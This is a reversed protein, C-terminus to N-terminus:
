RTTTGPARRGVRLSYGDAYPTVTTYIGQWRAVDPLPVLYDRDLDRFWVLTATGASDVAAQYHTLDDVATRPNNYVYRRPWLRAEVRASAYLADPANSYVLGAPPARRVAALLASREWRANNLGWAGDGLYGRIRDATRLATFALWLGTLAALGRVLAPRAPAATARDAAWALVLVLPAFLPALYREDVREVAASHAGVLVALKHAGMFALLLGPAFWATMGRPARRLGVLLTALVAVAFLGLAAIRVAPPSSEPAVWHSAANGMQASLETWSFGSGATSGVLGENLRVNRGLWPLIPLAAGVAFATAAGWRARPSLRPSRPALLIALAGVPVLVASAYRTLCALAACATAALLVRGRGTDAWRDLACLCGLTFLM